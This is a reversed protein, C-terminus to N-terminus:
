ALHSFPIKVKAKQESITRPLYLFVPVPPKPRPARPGESRAVRSYFGKGQWFAAVAASTGNEFGNARRVRGCPLSKRRQLSRRM